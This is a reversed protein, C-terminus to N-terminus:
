GNRTRRSGLRAHRSARSAGAKVDSEAALMASEAQRLDIRLQVIERELRALHFSEAREERAEVLEEEQAWAAAESM